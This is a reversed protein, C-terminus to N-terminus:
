SHGIDVVLRPPGNLTTVRFDAEESLGLVWTLVAEFDGTREAELLSPLSPKLELPGTYTQDGTNPDHGAAAEMRIQIFASGEINVELGSADAIIPPNVYNVSYGPLGGEFELTVRDFTGQDGTRVARLLATTPGGSAPASEVPARGGEFPESTPSAEASRTTTGDTASVSRTATTSPSSQEGDGGCGSAMLILAAASLFAAMRFIIMLRLVSSEAELCGM